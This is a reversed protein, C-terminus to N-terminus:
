VSDDSDEFYETGATAENKAVDQEVNEEDQEKLGASSSNGEATEAQAKEESHGAEYELALDRVSDSFNEPPEWTDDESLSNQWRVLYQKVYRCGVIKSVAQKSRTAPHTMTPHICPYTPICNHTCATLTELLGIVRKVYMLYAPVVLDHAM